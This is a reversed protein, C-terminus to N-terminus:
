EYNGHERKGENLLGYYAEQLEELEEYASALKLMLTRNHEELERVARLVKTAVMMQDIYEENVKSLKQKEENRMILDELAQNIYQEVASQITQTALEGDIVVIEDGVKIHIEDPGNQM